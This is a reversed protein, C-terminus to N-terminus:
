KQAALLELMAKAYREGFIGESKADFHLRDGKDTLGKSDVFAVHPVDKAVQELAANVTAAEKITVFEGLQGVVIPLDPDGVDNRFNEFMKALRAGYSQAKEPTDSDSEGQHWLMGKLTGSALAIKAMKVANEYHQAGKEWHMLPSGGVACPVLGIRGEPDNALMTRAFSIGPGIGSGGQAIPEIAVFWKDGRLFGIKPDTTQEALTRTDRGLMNSQGMLLYLSLKKRNNGTEFPVLVPVFPAPAAPAPPAESAPPIVASSATSEASVALM